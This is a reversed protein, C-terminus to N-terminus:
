IGTPTTASLRNPRNNKLQPHTHAAMTMAGDEPHAYLLSQLTSIGANGAPVFQQSVLFHELSVDHGHQAPDVAARAMLANLTRRDCVDLLDGVRCGRLRSQVLARLVRTLDRAALPKIGALRCTECLSSYSLGVFSAWVALTRLDGEAECGKLVKM